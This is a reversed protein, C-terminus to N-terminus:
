AASTEDDYVFFPWHGYPCKYLEFTAGLEM